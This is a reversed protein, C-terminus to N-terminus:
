RSSWTLWTTTNRGASSTRGGDAHNDRSCHRRHSVADMGYADNQGVRCSRARRAVPLMPFRPPANATPPRAAQWEVTRMTSQRRVGVTRQWVPVYQELQERKDRVATNTQFGLYSRKM